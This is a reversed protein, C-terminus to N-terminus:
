SETWLGLNYNVSVKVLNVSQNVTMNQENILQITPFAITQKPMGIYDYEVSSSWRHNFAYELGAGISWGWTSLSQSADGLIVASTNANLTYQTNLVATGANVYIPSDNLVHGLRGVVTGLYNIKSQGNIGGLGSFLTNEGRIDSASVTGSMGYVWEDTQWNINLNDGGMPGSSSIKDGFGAVNVFGDAGETAGFPDSWANSGWAGGLNGGIFIGRWDRANHNLDLSALDRHRYNVQLFGGYRTTNFRAPETIDEESNGLFDFLVSGSRM